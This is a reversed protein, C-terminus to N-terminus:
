GRIQSAIPEILKNLAPGFKIDPDFKGHELFAMVQAIVLPSMMMWTHSVPLIIHDKLGQVRTSAVSVKGDNEGAFMAAYIPNLSVNGAIVGLEFDVPGLGGIFGDEGTKLATGAPGNIWGFAPLDGLIDVIESGANPPGLMVVRGLESLKRDKLYYRVLIGGMSHTVFHVKGTARSLADPVINEALNEISATTSPYDCNLVIYGATELARALLAMSASTRGLGHFLIVTETM